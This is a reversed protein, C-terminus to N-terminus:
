YLRDNNGPMEPNRNANPSRRGLTAAVASQWRLLGGLNRRRVCLSTASRNDGCGVKSGGADFKPSVLRKAAGDSAPPRFKLAFVCPLSTKDERRPPSNTESLSASAMASWVSGRSGPTRSGRPADPSRHVEVAKGWNELWGEAKMRRCRIEAPCNQNWRASGFKQAVPPTSFHEVGERM